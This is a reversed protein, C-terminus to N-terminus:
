AIELRWTAGLHDYLRGTAVEPYNVTGARQATITLGDQEGTAGELAAELAEAVPAIDVHRPGVAKVVYLAHAMVRRPGTRIVHVDDGTLYQFVVATDELLGPTLDALPDPAPARYVNAGILAALPELDGLYADFWREAVVAEHVGAVAAPSM